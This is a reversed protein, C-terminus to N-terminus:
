TLVKLVMTSMSKIPIVAVEPEAARMDVGRVWGLQLQVYRRVPDVELRPRDDGLDRELLTVLEKPDLRDATRLHLVQLYHDLVCKARVSGVEGLEEEISVLALRFSQEDLVLCWVNGHLM